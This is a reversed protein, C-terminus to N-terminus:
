AFKYYKKQRIVIIPAHKKRLRRKLEKDQTAVIIDKSASDVLIDDVNKGPEKTNIIKFGDIFSLALKAESSKQKKIEVISKDLICLIYNFDCIRRLESAFDIRYKLSHLLFNTDFIINTVM